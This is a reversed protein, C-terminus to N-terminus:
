CRSFQDVIMIKKHRTLQWSRLTSLQHTYTQQDHIIRGVVNRIQSWTRQILNQLIVHFNDCFTHHLRFVFQLVMVVHAVMSDQLTVIVVVVVVMQVTIILVVVVVITPQYNAVIVTILLVLEDPQYIACLSAHFIHTNPAVAVCLLENVFRRNINEWQPRTRGKGFM